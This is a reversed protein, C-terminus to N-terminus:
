DKTYGKSMLCLAVENRRRRGTISNSNYGFAYVDHEALCAAVDQETAQRKVGWWRKSYSSVLQAIYANFNAEDRAAQVKDRCEMYASKELKYCAEM